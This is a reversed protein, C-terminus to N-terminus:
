IIKLLNRQKLQKYRIKADGDLKFKSITQTLQEALEAM